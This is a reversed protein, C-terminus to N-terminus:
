ASRGRDVLPQQTTRTTSIIQRAISCIQEPDADGSVATNLQKVLQSLMCVQSRTLASADDTAPRASPAPATEPSQDPKSSPGEDGMAVGWCIMFHEPMLQFGFRIVTRHSRVSVMACSDITGTQYIQEGDVTDLPFQVQTGPAIYGPTHVIMEHENLMQAIGSRVCKSGAGTKDRIEIEITYGEPFPYWRGLESSPSSITHPDPNPPTPSSM